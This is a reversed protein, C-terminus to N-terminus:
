FGAHPLHPMAPIWLSLLYLALGGINKHEVMSQEGVPRCTNTDSLVHALPQTENHPVPAAPFICLTQALSPAQIAHHRRQPSAYM